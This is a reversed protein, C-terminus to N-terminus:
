SGKVLKGKLIGKLKLAQFVLNKDALLSSQRDSRKDGNDQGQGNPWYSFYFADFGIYSFYM